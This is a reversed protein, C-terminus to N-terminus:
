ALCSELGARLEARDLGKGIFVIQSRRQATGWPQDPGGDFLMHVAQFVYRRDSGAIALIGKMRFIASGRERLLWAFWKNLRGEDFARDLEIGVSGVEDDHAHPPAFDRETAPAVVRGHKDRVTLAFEAPLHQTFLAFPGAEGIRAHLVTERTPDVLIEVARGDVPLAGGTGRELLEGSMRRFVREAMRPLQEPSADAVREVVVRLTPDPGPTLGLEYEGAALQYIGAWEFPYEPELFTPRIEMARQLDFGGVDLVAELPVQGHSGRVIRAIANVSRVRREVADVAESTALDLKNLVLVDAFAVQEQAEPQTDLHRELHKVDVLTVIGDLVYEDRVDDDVFFTQAVPAPNALGTTEIVVRDFRDRRKLLNALVRILDGRVTCCICGNNMEFIEEEARVVLGQDIGIEGFENEIVAIRQGHQESLIRNLLTTKGSGLFGTLVTVPIRSATM